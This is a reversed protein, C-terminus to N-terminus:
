VEVRQASCHPLANRSAGARGSLVIQWCNGEIPLVIGTRGVKDKTRESVVCALWGQGLQLTHSLM